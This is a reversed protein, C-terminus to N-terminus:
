GLETLDSIEDYKGKGKKLSFINCVATGKEKGKRKKGEGRM